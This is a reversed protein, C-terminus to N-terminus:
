KKFIFIKKWGQVELYINSSQYKLNWLKIFKFVNMLREHNLPRSLYSLNLLRTNHFLGYWSIYYWHNSKTAKSIWSDKPIWVDKVIYVNKSIQFNWLDETRQLEHSKVSEHNKSNWLEKSIRNSMLIVWWQLYIYTISYKRFLWWACCKLLLM